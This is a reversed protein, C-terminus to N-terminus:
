YIQPVRRRAAYGVAAFGAILMMWTGLEPVPTQSVSTLNFFVNTTTDYVPFPGPFYDYLEGTGLVATDTFRSGQNQAQSLTYDLSFGMCRNQVLCYGDTLDIRLAGGTSTLSVNSIFGLQSAPDLDNPLTPPFGQGQWNLPLAPNGTDSLDANFDSIWPTGWPDEVKLSITVLAGALSDSVYPDPAGPYYSIARFSGTSAVGTFNLLIAGTAAAPTLLMAVATAFAFAAIKRVSM